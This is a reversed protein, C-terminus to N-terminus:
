LVRHQAGVSQPPRERQRVDCRGEDSARQEQPPRPFGALERLARGEGDLMPEVVQPPLVTVSLDANIVLYADGLNLAEEYGRLIEAHHDTWWANLAAGGGRGDGEM